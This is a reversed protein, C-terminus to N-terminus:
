VSVLLQPIARNEQLLVAKKYDTRHQAQVSLLLMLILRTPTCEATVHPAEQTHLRFSIFLLYREVYFVDM